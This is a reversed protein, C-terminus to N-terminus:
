KFPYIYDFTIHGSDGVENKYAKMIIKAYHEGDATRIVFVNKNYHWTMKQYEFWAWSNSTSAKFAPSGSRQVMTGMQAMMEFVDDVIFESPVEKVENFDEKKTDIAGGKGLGSTGSNTKVYFRQFAIDWSLNENAKELDVEVFEGEKFSFYHWSLDDVEKSEFNVTRVTEEEADTNGKQIVTVVRTSFGPATINLKTTRDSEGNFETVTVAVMVDGNGSKTDVSCWDQESEIAWDVNSIIGINKSGGKYEFTLEQTSVALMDDDDSSCSSSVITMFGIVLSMLISQFKVANKM